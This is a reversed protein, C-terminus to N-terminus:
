QVLKPLRKLANEISENSQLLSQVYIHWKLQMSANQAHVTQEDYLKQM